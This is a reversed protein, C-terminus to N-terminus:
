MSAGLMGYGQYRNFAISQAQIGAVMKLGDNAMSLENQEIIVKELTPMCGIKLWM